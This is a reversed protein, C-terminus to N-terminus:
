PVFGGNEFEELRTHVPFYTPYKIKGKTKKDQRNKNLKKGTLILYFPPQNAQKLARRPFWSSFFVPHERAGMSLLWIVPDM